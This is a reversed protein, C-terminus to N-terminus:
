RRSVRKKKKMDFRGGKRKKKYKGLVLDAEKAEKEARAKLKVM